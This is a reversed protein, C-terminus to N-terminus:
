AEHWPRHWKYWAGKKRHGSPPHCNESSNTQLCYGPFHLCAEPSRHRLVAPPFTMKGAIHGIVTTIYLKMTTTSLKQWGQGFRRINKIARKYSTVAPTKNANFNTSVYPHSPRIQWSPRPKPSTIQLIHWFTMKDEQIMDSVARGESHYSKSTSM